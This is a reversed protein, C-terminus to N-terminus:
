SPVESNNRNKAVAPAGPHLSLSEICCDNGDIAEKKIM